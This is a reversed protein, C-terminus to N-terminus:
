MYCLLQFHVQLVFNVYKATNQVRVFNNKQIFTQIFGYVERHTEPLRETQRDTQKDMQEPTEKWVIEDSM